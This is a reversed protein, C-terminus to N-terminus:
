PTGSRYQPVASASVDVVLPGHQWLALPDGPAKVRLFIQIQGAGGNETAFGTIAFPARLNADLYQQAAAAAEPSYPTSGQDPYTWYAVGRQRKSLCVRGTQRYNQSALAVCGAEQAWLPLSGSAASGVRVQVTTQQVPGSSCQWTEGWGWSWHWSVFGCQQDRYTVAVNTVPTATSAAALAAADAAAQARARDSLWQVLGWGGVLMPILMGIIALLAFLAAQGRTDRLRHRPSEPGSASVM